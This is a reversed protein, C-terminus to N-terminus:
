GPLPGGGDALAVLPVLASLVALATIVLLLVRAHM